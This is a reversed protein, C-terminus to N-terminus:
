IICKCSRLICLDIIQDFITIITGNNIKPSRHFYLKIIYVVDIYIISLSKRFHDTMEDFLMMARLYIKYGTGLVIRMRHEPQINIFLDQLLITQRHLLFPDM